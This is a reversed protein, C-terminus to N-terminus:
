LRVGPVQEAEKEEPRAAQRGDPKRHVLDAMKKGNFGKKHRRGTEYEEYPCNDLGMSDSGNYVLWRGLM